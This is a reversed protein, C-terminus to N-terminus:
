LICLLDAAFIIESVKGTEVDADCIRHLKSCALANQFLKKKVLQKGRLRYNRLDEFLPRKMDVDFLFFNGAPM